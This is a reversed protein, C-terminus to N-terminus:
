RVKYTAKDVQVIYFGKPIPISTSTATLNGQAILRGDITYISYPAPRTEGDNSEIVLEGNEWYVKYDTPKQAVIDSIEASPFEDTGIEIFLSFYDWYQSDRYASLSEIPVYVPISYPTPHAFAYVGPAKSDEWSLPPIKAKSYIQKLNQWGKGSYGGIYTLTEPFVISEPDCYEFAHDGIYTLKSPLNIEKLSYCYQFANARIETITEVFDVKELEYCDSVFDRPVSEIGDQFVLEKLQTCLRFASEGLEQCSGPITVRQLNSGYFAAYEISNLSEPFVVEEVGSQYFACSQISQLSSPLILKKLSKCNSFCKGPIETIGEPIILPNVKLWPCDSFSGINLKKLSSPLNIEELRMYVFAGNGIEAINNPLIIKRIDLYILQDVEWFQKNADFFANEPIKNDIVQAHELNIVNLTGYYACEWMTRFDTADIPGTVSLIDIKDWNDGLASKLQGYETVKAEFEVDQAEAVFRCGIAIVIALTLKTITRM